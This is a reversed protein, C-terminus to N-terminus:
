KLDKKKFAIIGCFNVIITIVISYIMNLVPHTVEEHVILIGQGTPLFQMIFEFATRKFGDIYYPNPVPDGFVVGDLTYSVIENTTEPASLAEYVSSAAILLIFMIIISLVAALSRKSCLMCFMTLVSSLAATICIGMLIYTILTSIDGQWGGLLPVGVAFGGVFFMSYIFLSGIFCAIYNALYMNGRKHGVVLKNRITRDSYEKGLYPAVFLAFIIGIAPLLEFLIDNLTNPNIVTGKINMIARDIAQAIIIGLTGGAVVWLSAEKKLRSFNAKLLKNM